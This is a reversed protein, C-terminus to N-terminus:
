SGQLQLFFFIIHALFFQEPVTKRTREYIMDNKGVFPKEKAFHIMLYVCKQTFINSKYM